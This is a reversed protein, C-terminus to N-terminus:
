FYTCVLGVLVMGYKCFVVVLANSVYPSDETSKETEVKQSQTAVESEPSKSTTLPTTTTTQPRNEPQQSTTSQIAISTSSSQTENYFEQDFGFLLDCLNAKDDAKISFLLNQQLDFICNVSIPENSVEDQFILGVDSLHITMLSKVLMYHPSQPDQTFLYIALRNVKMTVECRMSENQQSFAMYFLYAATTNLIAVDTDAKILLLPFLLLLIAVM